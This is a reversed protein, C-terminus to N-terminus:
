GIIVQHISSGQSAGKLSKSDYTTYKGFISDNKFSYYLENENWMLFSPRASLIFLLGFPGVPMAKSPFTSLFSSLTWEDLEENYIVVMLRRDQGRCVSCVELLLCVDPMRSGFSVEVITLHSSRPLNLTKLLSQSTAQLTYFDGANDGLYLETKTWLAVQSLLKKRQLPYTVTCRRRPAMGIIGNEPLNNQHGVQIFKGSVHKLYVKNNTLFLIGFSVFAAVKVNRLVHPDVVGLPVKLEDMTLFSDQTLFTGSDTLLVGLPGLCDHALILSSSGASLSIPLSHGQQVILEGTVKLKFYTDPIFCDQFTLHKGVIKLSLSSGITSLSAKWYKDTASFVGLYELHTHPIEITPGQGMSWFQKSLVASQLSPMVATNDLESPDANEPDIVWLRIVLASSTDELRKTTDETTMYWMFCYLADSVHFYRKDDGIGQVVCVIDDKKAQICIIQSM